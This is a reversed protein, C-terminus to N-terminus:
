TIPKRTGADKWTPEAPQADKEAYINSAKVTVTPLTKLFTKADAHAPDNLVNEGLMFTGDKLPIPDIAARTNTPSIGRVKDAEAATLIIM